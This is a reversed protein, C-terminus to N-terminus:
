IPGTADRDKPIDSAGGRVGSSANKRSVFSSLLYRLFPTVESVTDSVYATNVEYNEKGWTGERANTLRIRGEVSSRKAHGRQSLGRTVCM